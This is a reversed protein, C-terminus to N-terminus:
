IQCVIGSFFTRLICTSTFDKPFPLRAIVRIVCGTRQSPNKVVRVWLVRVGLYSTAQAIPIMSPCYPLSIIEKNIKKELRKQKKGQNKNINFWEINKGEIGSNIKRRAWSHGNYISYKKETITVARNCLFGWSPSPICWPSPQRPAQSQRQLLAPLAWAKPMENNRQLCYSEYVSNKEVFHFINLNM